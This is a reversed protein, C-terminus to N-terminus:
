YEYGVQLFPIQEPVDTCITLNRMLQPTEKQLLFLQQWLADPARGHLEPSVICVRKGADLLTRIHANSFWDGYFSDLWVGHAQELWAPQQEVESQRTYTPIGLSLYQRMDPVSMDFAFWNSHGHADFTEKVAEALGDAKINIALPLNRGGMIDLLDDLSFETGTPMDHSILLKGCADRVDTETGLGMDFSRRFAIAQNRESQEKWYGRHSIIQM